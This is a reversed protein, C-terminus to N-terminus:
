LSRTKIVGSVQAFRQRLGIAATSLEAWGADILLQRGLVPRRFVVLSPVGHDDARSPVPCAEREVGVEDLADFGCWVGDDREDAAGFVDDGFGDFVKDVGYAVEAGGDQDGCVRRRRGVNGTM